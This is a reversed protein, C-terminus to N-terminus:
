RVNKAPMYIQVDPPLFGNARVRLTEPTKPHFDLLLFSYPGEKMAQEYASLIFQPSRPYAQRGINAITQRNRLTSTLLLYSSNRSAIRIQQNTDFFTQLIMIVSINSHHSILTFLRSLLTSKAATSYQLDDCILLHSREPPFHQLPSQLEEEPFGDYLEIQADEDAM